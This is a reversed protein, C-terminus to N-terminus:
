GRQGGTRLHADLKEVGKTGQCYGWVDEGIERAESLEVRPLLSLVAVLRDRLAQDNSLIESLREAGAPGQGPHQPNPPSLLPLLPALARDHFRVLVARLLQTLADLCSDPAGGPVLVHVLLAMLQSSFAIGQGNAPAMGFLCLRLFTSDKM